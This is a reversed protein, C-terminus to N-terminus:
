KALSMKYTLNSKLALVDKCDFHNIEREYGDIAYQM